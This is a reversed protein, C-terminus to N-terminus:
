EKTLDWIKWGPADMDMNDPTGALIINDMAKGAENLGNIVRRMNQRDMHNCNDIALIKVPPNSREIITTMLAILLLLQEGNSLANFPRKTGNDIWGFRFIEKQRDSVTEFFFERDLGMDELKKDIAVRLPDLMEKVMDGQIGKQGIAEVIQGWCEKEFAATQSDIINAKINRIDNRIKKQEDIKARLAETKTKLADIEEKLGSLDIGENELLWAKIKQAQQAKLEIHPTTNELRDLAEQYEKIMGDIEEIEDENFKISLVAGKADKEMASMEDTMAWYEMEQKHHDEVLDDMLTYEHDIAMKKVEIFVSFDHECRIDPSLACRGSCNRITDVLDSLTKITARHVEIETKIKHIYDAKEKMRRRLDNAKESTLSQSLETLEKHREELAAKETQLNKISTRYFEVQEEDVDANQLEDLEEKLKALEEANQRVLKNQAELEALHRIKEETDEEMGKLTDINTNLERDTEAGRNKLETLKKAAADANAKEKKWYSLQDKAYETMALLGSQVDAKESYQSMVNNFAAEMVEYMEENNRRLEERLVAARLREEVKDRDWSYDGGLGYLFDRKKNDTLEVFAGFDLMTPFDGVVERIRAEKQKITSEGQSPLVSIAQSIKVDTTGDSALKSKKVYERSITVDDTAIGVRMTDDSALEFTAEVTKGKGPVYGFAALSMAQLRTTKGAGNRGIIIDKGTLEQVSNQGKIGEMTISKIM